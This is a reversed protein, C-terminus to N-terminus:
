IEHIFNIMDKINEFDMDQQVPSIRLKSVRCRYQLFIAQEMASSERMQEWDSDAIELLKRFKSFLKNNADMETIPDEPTQASPRELISDIWLEFSRLISLNKIMKARKLKKESSSTRISPHYELLAVRLIPWIVRFVWKTHVDQLAKFMLGTHKECKLYLQVGEDFTQKRLNSLSLANKELWVACTEIAKYIEQSERRKAASGSTRSQREHREVRRDREHRPEPKRSREITRPRVDRRERNEPHRKQNEPHRKPEERHDRRERQPERDERYPEVRAQRQTQGRYPAQNESRYSPEPQARGYPRTERRPEAERGYPRPGKPVPRISRSETRANAYNESRPRGENQYSPRIARSNDSYGGSVRPRITDKEMPREGVRVPRPQIREVRDMRTVRGGRPFNGQLIPSRSRAYRQDRSPRVSRSDRVDRVDRVDRLGYGGPERENRVGPREVRRGPEVERRRLDRREGSRVAYRPNGGRTLHGSM